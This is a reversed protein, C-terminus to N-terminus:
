CSFRALKCRRTPSDPLISSGFSLTQFDLPVTRLLFWARCASLNSTNTEHSHANELFENMSFSPAEFWELKLLSYRSLKSQHTLKLSSHEKSHGEDRWNLHGRSISSRTISKEHDLLSRSRLTEDNIRECEIRKRYPKRKSTNALPRLDIPIYEHSPTEHERRCSVRHFLTIWFIAGDINWRPRYQHPLRYVERYTWRSPRQIDAVNARGGVIRM